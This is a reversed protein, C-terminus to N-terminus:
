DAGGGAAQALEPMNRLYWSREEEDLDKWKARTDRLLEEYKERSEREAKEADQLRLAELKVWARGVDMALNLVLGFSTIKKWKVSIRQDLEVLRAGQLAALIDHCLKPSPTDNLRAALKRVLMETLEKLLDPSTPRDTPGEEEVSRGVDIPLDPDSDSFARAKGNVPVEQNQTLNAGSVPEAIDTQVSPKNGSYLGGMAKQVFDAPLPTQVSDPLKLLTAKLGASKTRKNLRKLKVGFAEYGKYQIEDLITRADAVSANFIKPRFSEFHKDWSLLGKLKEPPLTELQRKVYVKDLLPNTCDGKKKPKTGTTDPEEHATPVYGCIYIKGRGKRGTSPQDWPIDRRIRGAKELRLLVKEATDVDWGKYHALHKAGVPKGHEDVAYLAKHDIDITHAHLWGMASEDAEAHKMRYLWDDEPLPGYLGSPQPGSLGNPGGMNKVFDVNSDKSKKDSM